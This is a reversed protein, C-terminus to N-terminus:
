ARNSLTNERARERASADRRIEGYRERERERERPRSSVEDDPASRVLVECSLIHSVQGPAAKAWESEIPPPLGNASLLVDRVLVGVAAARSGCEVASVECLEGSSSLTITCRCMKQRLASARHSFRAGVRSTGRRRIEEPRDLFTRSLWPGDTSSKLVPREGLRRRRFLASSSRRAQKPPASFVRVLFSAPEKQTLNLVHPSPMPSSISCCRLKVAVLSDESAASPSDYM